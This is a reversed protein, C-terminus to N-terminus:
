NLRGKKRTRGPPPPRMRRPTMADSKARWSGAISTFEFPLPPSPLHALLLRFRGAPHLPPSTAAAAERERERERERVECSGLSGGPQLLSKHAGNAAPAWRLMTVSKGPAPQRAGATALIPEIPALVLALQVRWTTQAVEGGGARELWALGPWWQQQGSRHRRGTHGGFSSARRYRVSCSRLYASCSRSWRVAPLRSKRQARTCHTGQRGFSGDKRRSMGQGDISQNACAFAFKGGQLRSERARERHAGSVLGERRIDIDSHEYAGFDPERPWGPLSTARVRPVNSRM